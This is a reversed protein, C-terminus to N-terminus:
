SASWPGGVRGPVRRRPQRAALAPGIKWAAMMLPYNWPAISGVVGLSERRIFSTMGAMYEGASAGQLVRAAGAFFRLCDVTPPIEDSLTVALPKGVNRSELGALEPATAEIADALNLLMESRDRPTSDYWTDHYARRAASVAREVDEATGRPAQAIVEGTAPNVVDQVDDGSSETWEGGIFLQHRSITTSM